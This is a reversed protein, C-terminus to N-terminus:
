KRGEVLKIESSVICCFPFYTWLYMKTPLIATPFVTAAFLKASPFGFMVEWYLIVTRGVKGCKFVLDYMYERMGLKVHSRLDSHVVCHSINRNAIRRSRYLNPVNKPLM